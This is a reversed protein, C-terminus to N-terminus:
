NSGNSRLMEQEVIFEAYKEQVEEPFFKWGYDFYALGGKIEQIAFNNIFCYDKNGDDFETISYLSAVKNDVNFLYLTNDVRLKFDILVDLCINITKPVEM